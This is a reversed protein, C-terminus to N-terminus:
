SIEVKILSLHFEDTKKAKQTPLNTLVQIKKLLFLVQFLDATKGTAM